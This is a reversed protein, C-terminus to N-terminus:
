QLQYLLIFYFLLSSTGFCHVFSSQFDSFFFYLFFLFLSLSLSLSISFLCSTVTAPTPKLHIGPQGNGVCMVPVAGGGGTGEWEIM